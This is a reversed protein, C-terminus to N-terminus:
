KSKLRFGAGFRIRGTDAVSPMVPAPLSLDKGAAHPPNVGIQSRNTSPDSISISDETSAPPIEITM